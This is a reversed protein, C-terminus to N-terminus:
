GVIRGKTSFQLVPNFNPPLSFSFQVKALIPIIFVTFKFVFKQSRLNEKPTDNEYSADNKMQILNQQFVSIAINSAYIILNIMLHNM